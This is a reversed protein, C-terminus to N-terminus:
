EVSENDKKEYKKNVSTDYNIRDIFQDLFLMLNNLIRDKTEGAWKNQVIKDLAMIVCVVRNRDHNNHSKDTCDAYVLLRLTYLLIMNDLKHYKEPLFRREFQSIELIFKTSIKLQKLKDQGRNLWYTVKKEDSFASVLADITSEDQEAAMFELYKREYYLDISSKMKAKKEPDTESEMITELQKIQKMEEEEVLMLYADNVQRYEKVATLWSFFEEVSSKIRDITQSHQVGIIPHDEGFIEIVKEEPIENLGNFHDWENQQEETLNDPMLERHEENYQYLQKMHSETLKLEAQTSLWAQEIIKVMEGMQKIMAIYSEEDFEEGLPDEPNGILDKDNNNESENNGNHFDIVNGGETLTSIPYPYDYECGMNMHAIKDGLNEQVSQSENGAIGVKTESM